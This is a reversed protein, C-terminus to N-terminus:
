LIQALQNFFLFTGQMHYIRQLFIPQIIAMHLPWLQPQISLPQIPVLLKLNFELEPQLIDPFLPLYWIGNLIKQELQARFGM